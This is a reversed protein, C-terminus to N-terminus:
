DNFAKSTLPISQPNDAGKFIKNAAQKKLNLEAKNFNPADVPMSAGTGPVLYNPTKVIYNGPSGHEIGNEDLKLYSGAGNLTLTKPTSILIEDERSTV